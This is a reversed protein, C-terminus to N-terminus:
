GKIRLRMKLKTLTPSIMLHWLVWCSPIICMNEKRKVIDFSDHKELVVHGLQMALFWDAVLEDKYINLVEKFILPEAILKM